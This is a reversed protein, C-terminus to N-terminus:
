RGNGTAQFQQRTNRFSRGVVGLAQNIRQIQQAQQEQIQASEQQNTLMQRFGETATNGFQNQAASTDGQAKVLNQLAEDSPSPQGKGARLDRVARQQAVAFDRPTKAGVTADFLQTLIRDEALRLDEQSVKGKAFDRFASIRADRIQEKGGGATEAERERQRAVVERLLRPDIAQRAQQISQDVGKGLMEDASKKREARKLEEAERVAEAKEAELEREHLAAADANERAKQMSEIRQQAIDNIEKQEADHREKPIQTLRNELIAIRQLSRELEKKAQEDDRALKALEKYREVEDDLVDRVTRESTLAAMAALERGHEAQTHLEALRKVVRERELAVRTAEKSIELNKQEEIQIEKLAEVTGKEFVGIAEGARATFGAIADQASRWADPIGKIAPILQEKIGGAISSGLSQVEPDNAIDLLANKVGLFADKLEMAAPNGDAAMEELARAALQAGQKLLQLGQNLETMPLKLKKVDKDKNGLKDASAALQDTEKTAKDADRGLEEIKKDISDLGPSAGDEIELRIKETM